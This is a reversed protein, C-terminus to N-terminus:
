YSYIFRIWTFIYILYYYYFETIGYVRFNRVSQRNDEYTQREEELLQELEQIQLRLDEKEQENQDKIIEVKKYKLM